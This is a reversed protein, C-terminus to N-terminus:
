SFQELDRIRCVEKACRRCRGCIRKKLFGQSWAADNGGQVTRSGDDTPRAGDIAVLISEQLASFEQYQKFTWVPDSRGRKSRAHKSSTSEALGESCEQEIRHFPAAGLRCRDRFPHNCFNSSAAAPDTRAAPDRQRCAAM